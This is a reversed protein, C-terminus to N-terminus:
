SISPFIITATCCSSEKGDRLVQGLFSWLVVATSYIRGIGFLNGHKRFIREIREASLVGAFPLDPQLLFTEVIKRFDRSGRNWFIHYTAWSFARRPKQAALVGLLANTKTGLFAMEIM